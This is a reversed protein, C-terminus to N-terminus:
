RLEEDDGGPDHAFTQVTEPDETRPKLRGATLNDGLLRSFRATITALDRSATELNHLERFEAGYRRQEELPLVPVTLRRVDIRTGTSGASAQHVNGPSSLFGSLFWSDLREPDPRILHLGRGLVAGEEEQGAVRTRVHGSAAAPVIVDDRQIVIWGRQVPGDPVMGSPSEGTEVDSARLVPRGTPKELDDAPEQDTPAALSARHFVVASWHGLDTIAATRWRTIEECQEWEDGLTYTSLERLKDRLSIRLAAIKAATQEPSWAQTATGVHRAPTVDVTDDLLDMAPVIRWFGPEADKMSADGSRVSTWIKVIEETASSWSAGLHGADMFLTRPDPSGQRDPRELAWIHVPIHRPEVAGPPLAVVARLAGHRVLEARIRRGSPRSSAAPPMLLMALGGPRLHAISHQVWALEGESRPPTGYEWRPDSALEDIGWDQVGFPPHCVVVDAEIDAFKDDRLSDGPALEIEAEDADAAFRRAAIAAVTVDLDQGLLRSVGYKRAPFLLNGMGVAPDLVTDGARPGALATMLMAVPEPTAAARAGTSDAFREILTDLAQERSDGRATEAILRALEPSATAPPTSDPEARRTVLFDAAWATMDALAEDATVGKDTAANRISRWLLETPPLEPLAGRSGLWEEVEARAYAPSAATGGIPTPFDAHRRRWNSVTARTVGARRAIDAATLVDPDPVGAGRITEGTLITHSFEILHLDHISLAKV